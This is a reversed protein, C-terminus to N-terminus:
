LISQEMGDKYEGSDMGSFDWDKNYPQWPVLNVITRDFCMYLDSSTFTERTWAEVLYLQRTFEALSLVQINEYM